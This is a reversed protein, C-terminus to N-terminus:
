LRNPASPLPPPAGVRSLDVPDAAPLMGLDTEALDLQRRAM